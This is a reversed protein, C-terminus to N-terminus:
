NFLPTYNVEHGWIDSYGPHQHAINPISVYANVAPLFERGLWADYMLSTDFEVYGELINDLIIGYRRYAEALADRKYAVAHHCWANYVRWLHYSHQEPLANVNQLNAGLYLIDWKVPLELALYQLIDPRVIHVDDEMLLVTQHGEQLAHAAMKMMGLCYSLKADKCPVSAVQKVKWGLRDFQESAMKWRDTRHPMNLCYYADFTM